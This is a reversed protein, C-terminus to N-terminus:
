LNCAWRAYCFKPANICNSRLHSSREKFNKSIALGDPAASSLLMSATRTYTLVANGLFLVILGESLATSNLSTSATRAYTLVVNRLIRLSQLGMCLPAFLCIFYGDGSHFNQPHSTKRCNKLNMSIPASWPAAIRASKTLSTNNTHPLKEILVISVQMAKKNNAFFLILLEM